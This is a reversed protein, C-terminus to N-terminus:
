VMRAVALVAVQLFSISPCILIPLFRVMRAVALVHGHPFPTTPCKTKFLFPVMRADALVLLQYFLASPRPRFSPATLANIVEFHMMSLKMTSHRLPCPLRTCRQRKLPRTLRFRTLKTMRAGALVTASLFPMSLREQNANLFQVMRANALVHSPPFPASPTKLNLTFSGMRVDALVLVQPFPM